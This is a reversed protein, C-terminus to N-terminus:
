EEVRMSEVFVNIKKVKLGTMTEVNYKVNNVINECIASVNVGYEVIIHLDINMFEGSISVKVGKSLSEKKLLNVLGDTRNRSAMGVVGYCQTTAIGAMRAIVEVPMHISGYETEIRGPM